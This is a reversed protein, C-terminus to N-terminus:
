HPRLEVVETKILEGKYVYSLKISVTKGNAARLFTYKFQAKKAMGQSIAGTTIQTNKFKILGATAGLAQIKVTYGSRVSEVVPSIQMDFNHILTRRRFGSVIRPSSDFKNTSAVAPNVETIAQAKFTETRQANYKGGALTIKGSIMVTQNSVVEPNVKLSIQAYKTTTNGPAVKVYYVSSQVALNKSNQLEIKVPKNLAQPSINKLNLTLVLTSNGRIHSGSLASGKLTLTANDGIWTNVEQGAVQKAKATATPLENAYSIDQAQAYAEQYIDAQGVQVGSDKAVPYKVKFNDEFLGEILETRTAETKDEYLGTYVSEFEAFRESNYREGFVKSYSKSCAASFEAIAKYVTSCDVSGYPITTAGQYVNVPNSLNEQENEAIELKVLDSKISADLATTLAFSEQLESESIPKVTVLVQSLKKVQTEITESVLQNFKASKLVSSKSNAIRAAFINNFFQPKLVSNAYNIAAREGAMTGEAVGRSRDASSAHGEAYGDAYGQIEARVGSWLAAQTEALESGIKAGLLSSRKQVYAQGDGQGIADASDTQNSGIQKAEDLKSAYYNFRSLYEQYKRDRKTIAVTQESSLSNVDRNLIIIKDQVVRLDRTLSVVENRNSRFQRELNPIERNLDAIQTTLRRHENTRNNLKAQTNRVRQELNDLEVVLREYTQSESALEQRVRTLRRKLNNAEVSQTDLESRRAAAVKGANGVEVKKVQILRKKTQLATKTRQIRAPLTQKQSELKTIKITLTQKQKKITNVQAQATRVTQKQVNVAKAKAAVQARVVRVEPNARDAQMLEALKARLSVLQAQLTQQKKKQAQVNSKARALRPTVGALKTKAATIQSDLTSLQNQTQTLQTKLKKRENQLKVLQARLTNAQRDAKQFATRTRSVEREKNRLRTQVRVVKDQYPALRREEQIISRETQNRNRELRNIKRSLEDIRDSLDQEDMELSDRRQGANQIQNRLRINTDELGEIRNEFSSESSYANDLNSQAANLSRTIVDVDASLQDFEIEYPGYNIEDPLSAFSSPPTLLAVLMLLPLLKKTQM